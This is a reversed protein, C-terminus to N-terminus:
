KDGHFHDLAINEPIAPTRAIELRTVACIVSANGNVEIRPKPAATAFAMAAPISYVYM